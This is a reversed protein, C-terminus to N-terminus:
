VHARGIKEGYGDHKSAMPKDGGVGMIANAAGFRDFNQTLDTANMTWTDGRDKSKFFYQGAMYVTAPDHPSIEFQTNWYFRFEDVKAPANTVNGIGGGRGQGGGGANAVRPTISRQTGARFDYRTMSANQSEGYAITWSRFLM